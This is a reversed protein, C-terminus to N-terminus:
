KSEEQITVVFVAGDESERLAVDGNYATLLSRVIGLGLGTGGEDRHTTFFPQFIKGANAPSIGRGDDSVVITWVGGERRPAIEVRGAANQRSNDLLNRFVSDFAEPSIHAKMSEAGGIVAVTLGLEGYRAALRAFLPAMDASGASAKMVDARAMELLRDVLKRLRDADEGINELFRARRDAPMDAGHEQLLEVAGRIGALPTKFEHSVQAAFNRIYASRHELARAMESFSESLLDLEQTVPYEIPGLAAQDGGAIGRTQRILAHIPRAITYSTFVALAVALLLLAAGVLIFTDRESYLHELISRPTRSLLVVGTLRNQNVIPFAVFVRVGTGRSISAFPPVPHNLTRARLASAYRGTLAQRVEDLHALSLGLDARGAVVAGRYDLIRIGSLATRQADMLVAGLRAGAATGAADAPIGPQVAGEPRPQITHTSLSLQPRVPRYPEGAPWAAAVPVGYRERDEPSALARGVEEKYIAAIFAAQSILELETQQVLENEYIRFFVVGGLPLLLLILNVALLITRLRLSWRRRGAIIPM